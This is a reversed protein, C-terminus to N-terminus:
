EAVIPPKERTVCAVAAYGGALNFAFRALAAADRRASTRMAVEIRGGMFRRSERRSVTKIAETRVGREVRGAGAGRGESGGSGVEGGAAGVAFRYFQGVKAAFEDDGIEPLRPAARAFDRHRVHFFQM